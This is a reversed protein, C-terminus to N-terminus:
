WDDMAKANGDIEEIICKQGNREGADKKGSESDEDSGAWEFIGSDMKGATGNDGDMDIAISAIPGKQREEELLGKKHEELHETLNEGEEVEMEMVMKPQNEEEEERRRRQAEKNAIEMMDEEFIARRQHSEAIWNPEERAMREMEKTCEDIM